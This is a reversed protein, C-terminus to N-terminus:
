RCTPSRVDAGPTPPLLLLTLADHLWSEYHDPSWGQREILFAYTDPNALAGYTSAADAATLGDRLPGNDLLMTIYATQVRHRRQQDANVFEALVPDTAASNRLIRHGLASRELIGRSLHTLHALQTHQETLARITAIQPLELLDVGQANGVIAVELIERLLTVKNGFRSYVTESAVDAKAAIADITTSAFGHAAFLELAARLIQQRTREAKEARRTRTPSKVADV